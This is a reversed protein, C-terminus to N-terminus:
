EEDNESTEAGKKGKSKWKIVGGNKHVIEISEALTNKGFTDYAENMVLDRWDSVSLVNVMKTFKKNIVAHDPAIFSDLAISNRVGNVMYTLLCLDKYWEWQRESAPIDNWLPVDFQGAPQNHAYNVLKKVDKIHYGEIGMIFLVCALGLVILGLYFEFANFMVAIGVILFPIGIRRDFKM